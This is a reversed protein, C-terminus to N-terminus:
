PLCGCSRRVVLKPQVTAHRPGSSKTLSRLASKAMVAIPQSVVTLPPFTYESDMTGDFSVVALDEPIRLGLDHCASVLGIAQADSSVFVASVREPRSLLETAGDYGGRRSFPAEVAMTTESVDGAVASLWATRRSDAGPMGHPGGVFGIRRHGHGKLHDIALLTGGWNDLGVSRHRNSPALQDLVVLPTRSTVAPILHLDPRLSVLLIGDVQRAILSRIQQLERDPDNNADGLLVVYREAAALASVERALEAFYPNTIDPVLLGIAHMRGSALTRAAANPRYDLEKVATLVRERAAASAPRPGDNLVYSVVATSVGALRAM